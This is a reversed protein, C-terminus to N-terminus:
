TGIISSINTLTTINGISILNTVVMGSSAVTVDISFGTSTNSTIAFSM